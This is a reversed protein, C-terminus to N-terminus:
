EGGEIHQMADEWQRAKATLKALVCVRSMEWFFIWVRHEASTLQAVVEPHREKSWGTGDCAECPPTAMRGEGFCEDCYMDAMAELHADVDGQHVDHLSCPFLTRKGEAGEYFVPM